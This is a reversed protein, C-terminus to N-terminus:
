VNDQKISCDYSEVGPGVSVVNGADRGNAVRDGGISTVVQNKNAHQQMTVDDTTPDAEMHMYIIDQEIGDGSEM